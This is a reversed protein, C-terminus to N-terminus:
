VCECVSVYVWLSHTLECQHVRLGACRVICVRM